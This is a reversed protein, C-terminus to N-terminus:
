RNIGKEKYLVESTVKILRRTHKRNYPKNFMIGARVMDSWEGHKVYKNTIPNWLELIFTFTM